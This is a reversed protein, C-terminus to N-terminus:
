GGLDGEDLLILRLGAEREFAKGWDGPARYGEPGANLVAGFM